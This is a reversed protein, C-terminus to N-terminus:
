TAEESIPQWLAVMKQWKRQLFSRVSEEDEPTLNKVLASIFLGKRQQMYFIELTFAMWEYEEPKDPNWDWRFVLNYDDDEEGHEELFAQWSDYEVQTENCYYNVPDCYYPHEHEWLHM